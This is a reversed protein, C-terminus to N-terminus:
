LKEKTKLNIFDSLKLIAKFEDGYEKLKTQSNFKFSANQLSGDKNEIFLNNELFFDIIKLHEKKNYGNCYFCCVGSGSLEVINFSTHKVEKVIGEEIAKKCINEINKINFNM